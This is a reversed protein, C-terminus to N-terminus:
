MSFFCDLVGSFYLSPLPSFPFRARADERNGMQLHLTILVRLPDGRPSPAVFLSDREREQVASSIAELSFNVRRFVEV